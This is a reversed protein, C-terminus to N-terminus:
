QAPDVQLLGRLALTVPMELVASGGLDVLVDLDAEAILRAAQLETLGGLHVLRAWDATFPLPARDLNYLWVQDGPGEHVQGLAALTEAVNPRRAVLYGIRRNASGTRHPLLLPPLAARIRKAVKWFNRSSEARLAAPSERLLQAMVRLEGALAQSM